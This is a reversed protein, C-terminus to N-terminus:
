DAESTVTESSKDVAANFTHWALTACKVRVPFECVGMFVALKGLRESPAHAGPEGTVMEHFEEYIAKAEALTKGKLSETMLSASAKSIACGEGTFAVDEVIDGDTRVYVRVQDGCLPNYGDAQAHDEGEIARFNRPQKNHDLIVEQYLERLDSM